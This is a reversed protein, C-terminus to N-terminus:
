SGAEQRAQELEHRRVISACARYAELRDEVRFATNLDGDDIAVAFSRNLTEIVELIEALADM